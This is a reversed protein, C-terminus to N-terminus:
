SDSRFVQNVPLAIEAPGDCLELRWLHPVLEQHEMPAKSFLFCQWIVMYEAPKKKPLHCKPLGVVTHTSFPSGNSGNPVAATARSISKANRSRDTSDNEAQNNHYCNDGLSSSLSNRSSRQLLSISAEDCLLSHCSVLRIWCRTPAANKASQSLGITHIANCM